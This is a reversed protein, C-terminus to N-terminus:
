TRGRLWQVTQAIGQELTFPLEGALERIENVSVDDTAQRMNTLRFSTLPPNRVGLTQLLDGGAAICRVLPEPLTSPRRVQMQDAILEAWARLTTTEYDALYLTRGHIRETPADLLRLIQFTVNGVYGLRKPADVRGLHFYRRRSLASFFGLFPERFWPGWVSCPRLICWAGRYGDFSQVIAESDLKSDDYFYCRRGLSRRRQAVRPLAAVHSSAHLLRQVSPTAAAAALVNHVGETNIRYGEPDEWAVFDTKAALHIVETPKFESFLEALRPGDLVDAPAFFPEHEKRAPPRRATILVERGSALLDDCLNV